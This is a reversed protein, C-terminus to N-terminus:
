DHFFHVHQYTGQIFKKKKTEMISTKTHISRMFLYNMWDFINLMLKNGELVGLKKTINNYKTLSLEIYFHYNGNLQNTRVLLQM